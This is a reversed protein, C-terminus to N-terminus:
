LIIVCQIVQAATVDGLQLCMRGLASYLGAVANPDEQILKELLSGALRFDQFFLTISKLVAYVCKFM